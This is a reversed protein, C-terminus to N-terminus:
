IRPRISRTRHYSTCLSTVVCPISSKSSVETATVLYQIAAGENM